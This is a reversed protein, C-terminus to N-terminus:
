REKSASSIDRAPGSSPFGTGVPKTREYEIDVEILTVPTRSVTPIPPWACRDGDPVVTPERLMQIRRRRRPAAGLLDVVTHDPHGHVAQPSEDYFAWSTTRSGRSTSPTRRSSRRCSRSTADLSVTDVYAARNDPGLAHIIYDFSPNFSETERRSGARTRRGCRRLSVRGSGRHADIVRRATACHRPGCASRASNWTALHSPRERYAAARRSSTVILSPTAVADLWSSPPWRRRRPVGAVHVAAIRTGSPSSRPLM